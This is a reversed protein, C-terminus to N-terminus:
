APPRRAVVFLSHGFPSSAHRLVHREGAFIAAFLANVPGPAPLDLNNRTGFPIRLLKERAKIVLVTPVIALGLLCNVYTAKRVHLGAERLKRVLEGRTYRRFHHAVRDNNAYLFQWAPVSIALHGGPKLCRHMEALVARDDPTHELVDWLCLLDQSGAPVPLHDSAAVATRPFGHERCFAISPEDLELGTVRGFRALSTLFGGVGCGIDLVLLPQAAGPAPHDAAAGRPARRSSCRVRARRRGC